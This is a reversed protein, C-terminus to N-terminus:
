GILRARVKRFDFYSDFFGVLAAGVLGPLQLLLVGLYFLIRLFTSVRMKKLYYELLSFGFLAYFFGLFLLANDAVLRLMDGGLLRMVILIGVVYVYPLPMKWYLFSGPSPTFEGALKLFGLMLMWGIFLQAAASLAMIAPSLHRLVDFMQGIQEVVRHEADAQFKMEQLFTIALEKSKDIESLIVEKEVWFMALSIVVLVILATIFAKSTKAGSEMMKGLVSAPIVVMAWAGLLVPDKRIEEPDGPPEYQGEVMAAVEEMRPIRMLLSAAVQPHKEYLAQEEKSLPRGAIIKDLTEQSLTVCGLHSLLAAVEFRWKNELGLVESVQSVYKKIRSARSFANPNVMSLVEVLVKVSGSLTKELLEKEAMVLDFQALADSLAKIMRTPPCPKTLFRFINSENVADMAAELDAFGTLMLRVTGPSMERVKALFEIGNMGPMRLDSVVVGFPGEKEFKALGEEGGVATEIEFHKRTQRQVAALLNPEDDVFLIRRKM